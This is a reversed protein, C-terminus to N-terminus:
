NASGFTPSAFTKFDSKNNNSDTGNPSRGISGTTSPATASQGEGYSGGTVSGYAVADVISGTDDLLGVQGSAAAMGQTLSTDGGAGLVYFAKAGISEGATFKHGAPGAGGAASQYKLEWNGLSVTCTSPNYLEVMEEGDTKLENIVVKKTCSGGSDDGPLTSSDDPTSSDRGPLVTADGAGGDPQVIGGEGDLFLGDTGNACAFLVLAASAATALVFIGGGSRTRARPRTVLRM